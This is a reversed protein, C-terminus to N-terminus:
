TLLVRLLHTQDLLYGTNKAYAVGIGLVKTVEGPDKVELCKM